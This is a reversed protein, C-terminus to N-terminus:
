RNRHGMLYPLEGLPLLTAVKQQHQNVYGKRNTTPNRKVALLQFDKRSYRSSGKASVTEKHFFNSPM